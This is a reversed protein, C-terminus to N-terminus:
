REKFSILLVLGQVLAIKIYIEGADTMLHYVDHWLRHDHYSTMSKFFHSRKLCRLTHVIGTFDFGMAVGDSLATQTPRVVGTCLLAHVEHLPYHPISKEM